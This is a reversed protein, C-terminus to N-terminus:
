RRLLLNLVVSRLLSEAVFCLKRKYTCLQKECDSFFLLKAGWNSSRSVQYSVFGAAVNYSM